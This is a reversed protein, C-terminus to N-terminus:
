RIPTSCRAPPSCCAINPWSELTDSRRGAHDVDVGVDDELPHHAAGALVARFEPDAGRASWPEADAVVDEVTDVIPVRREHVDIPSQGEVVMEADLQLHQRRVREGVEVVDFRVDSGVEAAPVVVLQSGDDGTVGIPEAAEGLQGICSTSAATTSSRRATPSSPRARGTCRCPSRCSERRRDVRGATPPPPRVRHEPTREDRVPRSRRGTARRACGGNRDRGRARTGRRLFAPSRRSRTRRRARGTGSARRKSRGRHHPSPM